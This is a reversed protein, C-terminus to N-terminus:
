DIEFTFFDVLRAGKKRLQILVPYLVQMGAGRMREAHLARDERM